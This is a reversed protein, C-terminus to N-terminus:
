SFLKCFDFFCASKLAAFARIGPNRKDCNDPICVCAFGSQQVAQHLLEHGGAQASCAMIQALSQAGYFVGAGSGGYLTVTDHGTTLIYDEPPLEPNRQLTIRNRTGLNMRPIVPLRKRGVTELAHNVTEAALADDPSAEIWDIKSLSLAPIGPVETCSRVAPLIMNEANM